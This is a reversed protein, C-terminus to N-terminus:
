LEEVGEVVIVIDLTDDGIEFGVVLNEFAEAGLPTAMENIKVAEVWAWPKRGPKRTLLAIIRRSFVM